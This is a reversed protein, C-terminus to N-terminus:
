LNTIKHMMMSATSTTSSTANVGEATKKQEFISVLNTQNDHHETLLRQIDANELLEDQTLGLVKLAQQKTMFRGKVRLRQTAVM